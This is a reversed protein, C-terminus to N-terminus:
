DYYDFFNNQTTVSLKDIIQDLSKNEEAGFFKEDKYMEMIAEKESINNINIPMYYKGDDTFTANFINFKYFEEMDIDRVNAYESYLFKNMYSTYDNPITATCNGTFM